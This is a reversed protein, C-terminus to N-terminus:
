STHESSPSLPRYNRRLTQWEPKIELAIRGLLRPLDQLYYQLQQTNGEYSYRIQQFAGGGAALASPLDRAITIGLSKELHSWEEARHAAIKDWGEQIRKQTSPSLKEFLERLNHTRPVKGSDICLFCKLFLEITLAGIVMVPEGLTVALQTDEPEVNCLVALAKYFCDAQEFIRSPDVTPSSSTTMTLVGFDCSYARQDRRALAVM